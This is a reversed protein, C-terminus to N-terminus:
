GSQHTLKRVIGTNADVEVLDGDKLVKTANKTGIICPIGLERSVIAAHSTIGGEDTVIAAAKKMIPLFEPHTMTTVLIEGAQFQSFEGRHYVVRVVGEAVGKCAIMGRIAASLDHDVTQLYRSSLDENAVQMVGDELVLSYKTMREEGQEAYIPSAAQLCEVIESEILYNTAEFSLGTRSAVTQWFPQLLFYAHRRYDDRMEKLYAFQHVIEILKHLKKDQITSLFRQYNQLNLQRNHEFDKLEQAPHNIQEIQHRVEAETWPQDIFEYIPVWSYKELYKAVDVKGQGHQEVLQLLELKANTIVTVRYPETIWQLLQHVNARDSLAQEVTANPGEIVAFALFQLESFRIMRDTLQHLFAILQNPSHHDFGQESQQKAWDFFDRFQQEYWLAYSSMDQKLLFQTYHEILRTLEDQDYYIAMLNGEPLFLKNPCPSYRANDLFAHMFVSAIYPAFRRAWM